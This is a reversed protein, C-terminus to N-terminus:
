FIVNRKPSDGTGNPRGVERPFEILLVISCLAFIFLLSIVAVRNVSQGNQENVDM